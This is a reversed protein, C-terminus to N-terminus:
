VLMINSKRKFIGMNKHFLKTQNDVKNSLSYKFHNPTNITRTLVIIMMKKEVMNLENKQRLVFVNALTPQGVQLITADWMGQKLEKDL